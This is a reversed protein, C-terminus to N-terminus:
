EATESLPQPLRLLADGPNGMRYDIGYDPRRLILEPERAAIFFEITAGSADLGVSIKEMGSEDGASRVYLAQASQWNDVLQQIADASVEQSPDVQWKGESKYVRLGPLELQGIRQADALLRRRVFQSYDADILHQYMDSILYVWEGVRVYRLEQLAELSGFDVRVDNLMVSAYPPDLALRSLELETVPYSRVAKQEAMKALARVQLEDAPLAPERVVSWESNGTRSLVLDDRLPRMVRISRIQDSSLGTIAQPGPPQELGPEYRAVLTLAVIAMVIFLNIIWRSKM